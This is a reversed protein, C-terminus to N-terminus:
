PAARRCDSHFRAPRTAIGAARTPRHATTLRRDVIDNFKDHGEIFMFHNGGEEEELDGPTRGPDARRDLGAVAM